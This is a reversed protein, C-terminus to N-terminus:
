LTGQDGLDHWDDGALLYPGEQNSIFQALQEWEQDAPLHWGAPCASGASEWPYLRGMTIVNKEDDNYTWCKYGADFAINEATWIQEGIRIWKYEIQDRSDTFVGSDKEFPDGEEKSCGVLLSIFILFIINRLGISKM